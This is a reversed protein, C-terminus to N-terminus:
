LERVRPKRGPSVCNTRLDETSYDVNYVRKLSNIRQRMEASVKNNRGAFASRGEMSTMFVEEILHGLSCDNLEALGKMVKVLREELRVGVLIRSLEEAEERSDKKKAKRGSAAM